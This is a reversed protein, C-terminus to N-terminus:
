QGAYVYHLPLVITVTAPTQRRRTYCHRCAPPRAPGGLARATPHGISCPPGTTNRETLAVGQKKHYAKNAVLPLKKTKLTVPHQLTDSIVAFLLL